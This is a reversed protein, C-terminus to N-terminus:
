SISCGCNLPSISSDSRTIVARPGCSIADDGSLGAFSRMLLLSRWVLRYVLRRVEPVTISLLSTFLSEKKSQSGCVVILYALALMSLTIHRYWGVWHRAEYQDLDVEGKGLELSEEVERM